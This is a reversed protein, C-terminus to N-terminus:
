PIPVAVANYTTEPTPPTTFRANPLYFRKGFEAITTPVDFAPNSTRSVVTGATGRRNLEVEAIVNLRNQVAYLTRGRLWLGDGNVLTESLGLDIKTAVGSFSVRFLSGTNSQVIILARRDPTTSIGNANNGEALVFDGTIPVRVAEAPLAGHRGFPLKFLVANRSDTFWAADRTVIVDNIFATAGVPQLRYSKLIEGTRVDLVRADGGAGGAVFLRNKDIKLGLSATGPGESITRGAGTRLDARYIDGDVRSGFYAYPKTGIAIGEPQFGSPLTITAPLPHSKAAEAPAAAVTVALATGLLANALTRRLM